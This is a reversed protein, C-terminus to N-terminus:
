IESSPKKYDNIFTKIYTGFNVDQNKKKNELLLKVEEEKEIRSFDLESKYYEL